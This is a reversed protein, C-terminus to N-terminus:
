DWCVWALHFAALMDPGGEVLAVAAFPKAEHLGVPWSAEAGVLTRAKAGNLQKWDMRRAQANKRHSDTIIWCRLGRLDACWLLGRAAMLQISQASLGRLSQSRAFRRAPPNKSYRGHKGYGHGIRRSMRVPSM